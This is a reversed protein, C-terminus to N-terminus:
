LGYILISASSTVYGYFIHFSCIDNNTLFVLITAKAVNIWSLTQKGHWKWIEKTRQVRESAAWEATVASKGVEALHWLYWSKSFESKETLHPKWRAMTIQSMRVEHSIASWRKHNFRLAKYIVGEASLLVHGGERGLLAYRRPGFWGATLTKDSAYLCTSTSTTQKFVNVAECYVVYVCSTWISTRLLTSQIEREQLYFDACCHFIEVPTKAFLHQGWSACECTKYYVRSTLKSQGRQYKM